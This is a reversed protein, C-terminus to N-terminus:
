QFVITSPKGIEFDQFGFDTTSFSNSKFVNNGIGPIAPYYSISIQFTNFVLYENKIMVGLGIQSYPRSKSFGNSADGLMGVTYSIYPGFRFGIFDWPAYSQTQLTLLARSSGKLGSSNFGNLGYGDNISLNDYAFRNIGLTIQPKVFQRFKWKDIEFLRTFYNLRATLAGQETHSNHFFTGYEFSWSLYGWNNYNGFSAKVGVYVRGIQDRIQFGATLGYVSGVPVDETIGFKFIYKDQVYKRTSIGMGALYFDQSAYFHLSDNIELPKDFFRIELFRATLILNTARESEANGKFVRIAKGLWYDQTTFKLNLPINVMNNDLM